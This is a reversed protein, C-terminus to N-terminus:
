TTPSATSEDEFPEHTDDLRLLYSGRAWARSAIVVCVVVPILAAVCQAVFTLYSEWQLGQGFSGGSHLSGVLLGVAAATTLLALLGICAIALRLRNLGRLLSTMAQEIDAALNGDEATSEDRRLNMEFENCLNGNAYWALLAAGLLPAALPLQAWGTTAQLLEWAGVSAGLAFAESVAAIIIFAVAVVIAFLVMEVPEFRRKRKAPGGHLWDAVASEIREAPSLSDDEFGDVPGDPEEAM